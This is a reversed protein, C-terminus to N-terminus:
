HAGKGGNHHDSTSGSVPTGADVSTSATPVETHTAHTHLPKPAHTQPSETESPDPSQSAGATKGCDSRAAQSVWSGHEGDKGKPASRAVGSVYAGHNKVDPPCSPLAYTSPTSAVKAADTASETATPSPSATVTPDATPQTTADASTVVQTPASDSVQSLAIMGGAGGATLAAAVVGLAKAKALAAPTLPIHV